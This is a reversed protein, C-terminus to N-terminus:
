HLVYASRSDGSIGGLTGNRVLWQVSQVPSTHDYLTTAARWDPFSRWLVITSDVSASALLSIEPMYALATVLRSHGSLRADSGDENLHTGWQGDADRVWIYRSPRNFLIVHM